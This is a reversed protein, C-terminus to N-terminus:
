TPQETQQRVGFNIRAFAADYRRAAEAVEFNAAQAALELQRAAQVCEILVLLDRNSVSAIWDGGRSNRIADNRAKRKLAVIDV